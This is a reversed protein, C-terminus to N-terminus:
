EFNDITNQLNKFIEHTSFEVDSLIADLEKQPVNKSRKDIFNNLQTHYQEHTKIMKNWSSHKTYPAHQVRKIWQGFDCSDTDEPKLEQKSNQIHVKHILHNNYFKEYNINMAELSRVNKQLSLRDIFDNYSLNRSTLFNVLVNLSEDVSHTKEYEVLTAYLNNAVNKAYNNIQQRYSILKEIQGNKMIPMAYVKVWYFDGNKARNKVFAYLSRGALLETWLYKFVAKPMHPHRLINHPKGILEARTYGSIKVFVDNAYTIVGKLDTTSVIVDTPGVNIEHETITRMM